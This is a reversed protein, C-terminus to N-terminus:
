GNCPGDPGAAKCAACRSCGCTWRRLSGAAAGRWLAGCLHRHRGVSHIGAATCGQLETLHQLLVTSDGRQWVPRGELLLLQSGAADGELQAVMTWGGMSRAKQLMTYLPMKGM